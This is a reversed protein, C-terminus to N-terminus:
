QSVWLQAFLTPIESSSTNYVWLQAFLFLRSRALRRITCEGGRPTSCDSGEVESCHSGLILFADTVGGFLTSLRLSVIPLSTILNLSKLRPILGINFVYLVALMSSDYTLGLDLVQLSYRVLNQSPRPGRNRPRWCGLPWFGSHNVSRAPRCWGLDFSCISCTM